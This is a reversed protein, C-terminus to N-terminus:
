HLKLYESRSGFKDFCGAKILSELAKKGLQQSAMREVFDEFSSFSGFMERENVIAQSLGRGIGKIANLGFLISNDTVTFVVKSKNIQPPLVKIGM